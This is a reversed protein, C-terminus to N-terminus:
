VGGKVSPRTGGHALEACLEVLADVSRGWTWRVRVIEASRRGVREAIEPANLLWRLRTAFADPDRAALFGTEGDQVSEPIGGEAVALVPRGCAMAELPVFGFPERQPAYLVLRAQNYLTVLEEEPVRFRFVLEVGASAARAELRRREAERSRDSVIILPPREAALVRALADVLFDLGKLPHLAAVTLVFREREVGRPRFREANVGLYVVRAARGYIELVRERSFRSNVAVMDAALLNRRDVRGLTARIVARIWPPTVGREYAARLPEQCYYLAPTRLGRLVFPAQTFQSPHVIVVDFRAADIARAIEFEVKRVAVLHRLWRIPDLPSLRGELLRERRPPEPVAFTRVRDIVEALPLFREEASSPVFAEVEHGLRVLGRIQEQVTRKGGGSPLHHFVAIRM